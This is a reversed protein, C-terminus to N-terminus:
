NKFIMGFHSKRRGLRPYDGMQHFRNEDDHMEVRLHGSQVFKAGSSAASWRRAVLFIQRFIKM